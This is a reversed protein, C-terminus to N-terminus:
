HCSYWGNRGKKNFDIKGGSQYTALLALKGMRAAIHVANSGWPDLCNEPSAGARLFACAMDIEQHPHFCATLMGAQKADYKALLFRATDSHGAMCALEVSFIRREKVFSKYSEVNDEKVSSAREENGVVNKKWQSKYSPISMSATASRAADSKLNLFLYYAELPLGTFVDANSEVLSKIVPLNGKASAIHLPTLGFWTQNVNARQSMILIPAFRSWQEFSM